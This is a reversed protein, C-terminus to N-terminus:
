EEVLRAIIGRARELEETPTEVQSLLYRYGERLKDRDKMRVLELLKELAERGAGKAGVRAIERELIVRVLSIVESNQQRVDDQVNEAFFDLVVISFESLVFWIFFVLCSLRANSTKLRNSAMKLM